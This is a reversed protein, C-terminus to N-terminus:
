PVLWSWWTWPALMWLFAINGLTIAVIWFTWVIARVLFPTREEYLDEYM